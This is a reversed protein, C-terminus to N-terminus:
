RLVLVVGRHNTSERSLVCIFSERFLTLGFFSLFFSTYRMTSLHGLVLRCSQDNRKPYVRFRPCFAFLRLCGCLSELLEMWPIVEAQEPVNSFQVGRFSHLQVRYSALFCSSCYDIAALFLTSISTKDSLCNPHLGAKNNDHPLIEPLTPM